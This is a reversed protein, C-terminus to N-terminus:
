AKTSTSSPTDAGGVATRRRLAPGIRGVETHPRRAVVRSPDLARTVQAIAQDGDEVYRPDLLLWDGSPGVLELGRDLTHVAAPCTEFRITTTSAGTMTVGDDAVILQGGADPHDAPLRLAFARGHVPAPEVVRLDPLVHPSGDTPVTVLMTDRVMRAQATVHEASVDALLGPREAPMIVVEDVLENLAAESLAKMPEQDLGRLRDNRAAEIEDDGLQGDALDDIVQVLLEAAHITDAARTDTTLHLARQRPGVPIAQCRADYALGRRQRLERWAWRELVAALLSTAPGRPTTAGMLMPVDKVQTQAPLREFPLPTSPTAPRRPGDALTLADLGPVPGTAVLAANGRTFWRDAHAQVTDPTAAHLGLEESAVLGPGRAGYRKALLIGREDAEGRKGAEVRLVRTEAAIRDFPLKHLTASMECLAEGVDDPSGHAAFMTVCPTVVASIGSRPGYRGAVLHEVLHTLGHLPLSEDAWGVRFILGATVPGPSDALYAPLGGLEERRVTSLWSASM